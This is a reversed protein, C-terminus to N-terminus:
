PVVSCAATPGAVVALVQLQPMQAAAKMTQAAAAATHVALLQRNSGRWPDRALLILPLVM